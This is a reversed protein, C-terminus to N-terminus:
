QNSVPRRDVIRQAIDRLKVNERQSARRLLDFADDPSLEPSKAMLMGKAQEIVARSQMAETLQQSLDYAGWYSVANALVASAAGALDAALEEDETSFAATTASYFNIAGVGRDAAVLPMSLTSRIGHDLCAQAYEDYDADVRELDDLRVVRKTRWADLCPGRGTEYQAQDIEPSQEDTFVATTPREEDDLMTIGAFDAGPLAAVSIDAVQRLADGMPVDAVLFQSLAHLAQSRPQSM